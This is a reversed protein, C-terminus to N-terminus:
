EGYLEELRKEEDEINQLLQKIYKDNRLSADSKAWEYPRRTNVFEDNQMGSYYFFQIIILAKKERLENNLNFGQNFCRLEYEYNKLLLIAVCKKYELSDYNFSKNILACTITDPINFFNFECSDCHYSTVYKRFEEFSQENNLM